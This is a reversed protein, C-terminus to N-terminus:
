AKGRHEPLLKRLVHQENNLM